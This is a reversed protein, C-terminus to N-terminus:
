KISIEHSPSVWLGGVKKDRLDDIRKFLHEGRRHRKTGGCSFQDKTM